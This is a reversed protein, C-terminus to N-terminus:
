NNQINYEAQLASISKYLVLRKHYEHSIDIAVFDSCYM